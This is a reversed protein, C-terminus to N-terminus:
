ENALVEMIKQYILEASNFKEMKKLNNIYMDKNKLVNDIKDNLSEETLDKEELMEAVKIKKLDLANYYQHNNAVYPSPIYICPKCLANIEAITSAGARSIVLESSKIVGPLDKISPIIKVSDSYKEKIFDDYYNDGTIYLIQYDDKNFNRLFEKMKNNVSNSGLSGSVFLILKKNDDLGISSKKIEPVKLARDGTPNGSYFVNKGKFYKESEKISVGILDAYKATVKNVKGPISNQEHIFIPVKCKHAAKIVPYTVYGGIGLVVDPKFDKILKIMQKVDKKILFLNKINRKIYKANMTFGYIEIPIYKIGLSPVIDKEMRNTTGVYIVELDKDHEKFKDIIALAPNIHGQTGGASVLIKM